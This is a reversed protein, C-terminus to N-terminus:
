YQCVTAKVDKSTLIKTLNEKAKTLDAQMQDYAEAFAFPLLRALLSSANYYYYPMSVKIM